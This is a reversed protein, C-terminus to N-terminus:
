TIARRALRREPLDAIQNDIHHTVDGQSPFKGKEYEEKRIRNQLSKVRTPM